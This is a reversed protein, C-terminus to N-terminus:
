LDPRLNGTIILGDRETIIEVKEASLKGVMRKAQAAIVVRRDDRIVLSLVQLTSARTVWSEIRAKIHKM